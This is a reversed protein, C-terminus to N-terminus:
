DSTPPSAEAGDAPGGIWARYFEPPFFALWIIAVPVVEFVAVAFILAESWQGNITYVIDSATLIGELIAWLVGAVGWLLFRNCDLPECFGLKLRRRAKFFQGLGEAGLWAAPVFSGFWDVWYWFNSIPNIGEWDGVWASGAVGAALSVVVAAVLWKAWREAPRFVARIFLVFAVNGLALALLSGYALPSPVLADSRVFSYPIDFFAYSLMWLLFCAAVLFEPAQRTRRSLWLLRAGVVLYSLGAVGDGVLYVVATALSDVTVSEDM